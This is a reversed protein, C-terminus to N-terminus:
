KAKNFYYEAKKEKKLRTYIKGLFEAYKPKPDLKYLKLFYDRAKRFDPWVKDLANLVKKYQSSTRNNKYAKMEKVYLNEAKWFHTEAYWELATINNPEQKLIKDALKKSLTKNELNKSATLYGTLLDVDSQDEKDLEPWLEVALEWNESKVYTEFLRVTIANIKDGGPYKKRYDELAIIEKSLNDIDKYIEALTVYLKPSPYELYEATELYDRAKNTKELRKAAIGAKYYVSAEAKKDKSELKEIAQDWANLAAEYNGAQYATEGKKTLRQTACSSIILIIFLGQIIRNIKM